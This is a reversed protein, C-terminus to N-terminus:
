NPNRKLSLSVEEGEIKVPSLFSFFLLGRTNFFLFSPIKKYVHM